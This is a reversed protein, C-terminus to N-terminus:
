AIVLQANGDRSSDVVVWIKSTVAVLGKRWDVDDHLVAIHGEFAHDGVLKVPDLGLVIRLKRSSIEIQSVVQSDIVRLM